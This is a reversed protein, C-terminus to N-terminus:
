DLLQIPDGETLIGEVLVACYVGACGEYGQAVKRLVEPNHEGTDPDLSIAKCRPDRELVMIEAKSGIRIKRRILKDEAFVDDPSLNLYINARFRRKDIPIDLEAALRNVSQVSIMSVPRCDFLARDSHVLTLENEGRLGECLMEMLRPDDITVVEGSPTVVDLLLDNPEANAPNVGPAISTAELLNPPKVSRDPNRFHPRYRLMQEQATAVLYPFGKRAASNKFAYCRDGYIGSFGMFMESMPEGSMGKVPYRWLSEVTGITTM